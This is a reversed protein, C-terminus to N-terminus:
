PKVSSFKNELSDVELKANHTEIPVSLMEFVQRSDIMSIVDDPMIIEGANDNLLLGVGFGSRQMYEPFEHLRLTNGTMNQKIAEKNTSNHVLLPSEKLLGRQYAGLMVKSGFPDFAGGKRKCPFFLLHCDKGDM